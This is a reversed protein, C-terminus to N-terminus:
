VPKAGHKQNLLHFQSMITMQKPILNCPDRKTKLHVTSQLKRHVLLLKSHMKLFFAHMFVTLPIFKFIFFHLLCIKM